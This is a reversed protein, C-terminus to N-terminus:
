GKTKGYNATVVILDEGDVDGDQDLDAEVNYQNWGTGHTDGTTTGLARAMFGLDLVGVVGDESIDGAGFHFMTNIRDTIYAQSLVHNTWAKLTVWNGFNYDDYVWAGCGDEKLDIVGNTDIDQSAPDYTRADPGPTILGWLKERIIPVGGAWNFAWASKYIFYVEFATENLKHVKDRAMTALNTYLWAVGPGCDYTYNFSFTCDDVTVYDAPYVPAAMSSNHWLTTPHTGNNRVNFTIYTADTDGAYATADWSGVSWSEAIWGEEPLQNFPNTGVMSEYILGLVLHDWLWESSIMNLQEIDSKFGYDIVTDVGHTMDWFSYYSDLGFAANNIVGNWGTRYAKVAAESWMPVIPCYELFLFGLEIAAAQAAATDAPYKV